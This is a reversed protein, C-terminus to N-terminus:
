MNGTVSNYKCLLEHCLLEQVVYWHLLDSSCSRAFSRLKSGNVYGSTETEVSFGVVITKCTYACDHTNTAVIEQCVQVAMTLFHISFKIAAPPIADADCISHCKTQWEM